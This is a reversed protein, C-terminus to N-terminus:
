AGSGVSHGGKEAFRNVVGAHKCPERRNYAVEPRRGAEGAHVRGDPMLRVPQGILPMGSRATAYGDTANLGGEFRLIHFM